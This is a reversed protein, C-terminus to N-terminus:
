RPATTTPITTSVGAPAATPGAVVCGDLLDLINQYKAKLDNSSNVEDGVNERLYKEFEKFKDFTIKALFGDYTCKCYTEAGAAGLKDTVGKVCNEQYNTRVEDNYDKPGLNQSCGALVLVAALLVL